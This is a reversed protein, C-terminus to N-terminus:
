VVDMKNPNLMYCLANNIHGFSMPLKINDDGFNSLVDGIGNESFHEWQSFYKYYSYLCVACRGFQPDKSLAKAMNSMQTNGKIRKVRWISRESLDGDEKRKDNVDFYQLFTDEINSTYLLEVVEEELNAFSIKDRYVEMEEFLAKAYDHNLKEMIQVFSEDDQRTLYLGTISDTFCCRLLLGVPLKLFLSGDNKFSVDALEAIARLNSLIRRALLFLVINKRTKDNEKFFFQIGKQHKSYVKCCEFLIEHWIQKNTDKSDM